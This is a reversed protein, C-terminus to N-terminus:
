KQSLAKSRKSRGALSYAPENCMAGLMRAWRNAILKPEFHTQIRARGNQGFKQALQRDAILTMLNSALAVDDNVASLFGTKGDEVAEMPGGSRVGVTPLGAAMAELFVLPFADNQTPLCFIDADAMLDPIDERFPSFLIYQQMGLQRVQEKLEAGYDHRLMTDGCILLRANRFLKVVSAFANILNTQGKSPNLRGISVVFPQSSEIGFERRINGSPKAQRFPTLDVINHVVDVHIPPVGAAMLERRIFHSCAILNKSKKLTKVTPSDLYKPPYCLYITHPIGLLSALMRGFKVDLRQGSTYIIDPRIRLAQVFLKMLGLPVKAALMVAREVRSPAPVLITDRGFDIFHTQNPQSPRIARNLDDRQLYPQKIVHCDLLSDDASSIFYNQIDYEPNRTRTIQLFLVKKM